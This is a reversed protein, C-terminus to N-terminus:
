SGQRGVIAVFTGVPESQSCSNFCSPKLSDNMTVALVDAEERTAAIIASLNFRGGVSRARASSTISHPPPFDVEEGGLQRTAM